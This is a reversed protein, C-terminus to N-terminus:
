FYCIVNERERIQVRYVLRRYLDIARVIEKSLLPKEGMAQAILSKNWNTPSKDSAIDHVKYLM